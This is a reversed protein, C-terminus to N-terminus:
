QQMEQGDQPDLDIGDAGPGAQAEEGKHSPQQAEQPQQQQQQVAQQQGEYLGTYYGAYYWSMLLKKLGEDAGGLVTQPSLLGPVPPTNSAAASFAQGNTGASASAQAPKSSSSADNGTTPASSGDGGVAPATNVEDDVVMASGPGQGAEHVARRTTEPKADRSTEPRSPADKLFVQLDDVTGGRARVDHFIKYDGVVRDWSKTIAADEWPSGTQIPAAGTM